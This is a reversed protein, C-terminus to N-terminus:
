ETMNVPRIQDDKKPWRLLGGWSCWIKTIVEVYKIYDFDLFYLLWEFVTCTRYKSPGFMDPQWIKPSLFILTLRCPATPRDQFNIHKTWHRIKNSYINLKIFLFIFNKTLQVMAKVWLYLYLYLPSFLATNGVLESM